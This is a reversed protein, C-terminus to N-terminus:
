VQASNRASSPRIKVSGIGAEVRVDLTVDSRGYQENLYQDGKKKLGEVDVTGLGMTCRVRVGVDEPVYVTADGVGGDVVVSASERWPGTLDLVLEGVGQEIDLDSVPLGALEFRGSGAGLQVDLDVPVGDAFAITWENKVDGKISGVRREPTVIELRGSRGKVKYTVGPKLEAVNYAFDARIAGDTGGTVHLEGLALEIKAAVVEAGELDIMKTETIMPGPEVCSGMSVCGISPALCALSAVLGILKFAIFGM